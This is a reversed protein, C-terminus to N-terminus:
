RAVGRAKTWVRVRVEYNGSSTVCVKLPPSSDHAEGIHGIAKAATTNRVWEEPLVEVFGDGDKRFCVYGPANTSRLAVAMFLRDQKSM